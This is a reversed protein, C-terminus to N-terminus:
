RKPGQTHGKHDDHTGPGYNPGGSSGDKGGGAGGGSSTSSKSCGVVFLVLALSMVVSLLKRMFM